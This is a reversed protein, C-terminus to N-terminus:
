NHRDYAVCTGENSQGKCIAGEAIPLVQLDALVGKALRRNENITEEVESQGLEKM